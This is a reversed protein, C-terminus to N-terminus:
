TKKKTVFRLNNKKTYFNDPTQILFADSMSKIEEKPKFQKFTKTEILILNKKNQFINKAEKSIKKGIVIEVFTKSIEKALKENISGNIIIIGGFASVPDCMFAKKYAQLLNNNKSVGCPNVHKIIVVCPKNIDDALLCGAQMDNINNYSLEKGQIIKMNFFSNKNNLISTNKYIAAKQKPNEGYRLKKVIESQISFNQNKNNGIKSFWNSIDMDYSTIENFAKNALKLRTKKSISNKNKKMENILKQYNDPNTVITVFEFNKASARILTPGGIDINEICEKFSSKASVTKKFPYLNVIVLDILNIKNKKLEKLHKPENRNALIGGHIKPHLTKIRGDLIEPSNTYKSIENVKINNEKLFKYTGGSSYIEVNNNILFKSIGLINTKDFVSILAKKIKIKNSM